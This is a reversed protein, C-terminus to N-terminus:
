LSVSLSLFDSLVQERARQFGTAMMARLLLFFFGGSGTGRGGSEGKVRLERTLRVRNMGM